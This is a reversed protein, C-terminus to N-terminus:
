VRYVRSQQLEHLNSGRASLVEVAFCALGFGEVEAICLKPNLAHPRFNPLHWTRIMFSTYRCIGSPSNTTLEVMTTVLTM